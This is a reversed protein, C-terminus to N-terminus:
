IVIWPRDMPSGYSRHGLCVKGVGRVLTYQSTWRTVWAWIQLLPTKGCPRVLFLELGLPVEGLSMRLSTALLMASYLLSHSRNSASSFNRAFFDYFVRRCLSCNLSDIEELEECLESLSTAYSLVGDTQEEGVYVTCCYVCGYGHVVTMCAYRLM